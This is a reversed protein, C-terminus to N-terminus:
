ANPKGAHANDFADVTYEDGDALTAVFNRGSGPQYLNAGNNLDTGNNVFFEVTQTGEPIEVKARVYGNAGRYGRMKVGPTANWGDFSGRVYYADQQWAATNFYITLTPTAPAAPQAAKRTRRGKKAAPKAAKPKAAARRTRVPDAPVEKGTRNYVPSEDRSVIVGEEALEHSKQLLWNYSRGLKDAAEKISKETTLAEVVQENTVHGARRTYKRTM